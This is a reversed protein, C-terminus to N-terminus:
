GLFARFMYSPWVGDRADKLTLQSGKGSAMQPQKLLVNPFLRFATIQAGPLTTQSPSSSFLLMVLRFDLQLLFSPGAEGAEASM